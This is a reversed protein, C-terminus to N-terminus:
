FGPGAPAVAGATKELADLATNMATELETAERWDSEYRQCAAAQAVDAATRTAFAESLSLGANRYFPHLAPILRNLELSRREVEAKVSPERGHVLVAALSLVEDAGTPAVVLRGLRQLAQRSDAAEFTPLSRGRRLHHWGTQWWLERERTDRFRGPYSAALAAEPDDGRLLKKLFAPWEAAGSSEQQCFILLWVAGARREAPETEGRKWQFLQVSSPPRLASSAQKLADLQAPDARTRWWGLAAHELWLPVSLNERPGHHAVALRTLLGQVIARRLVADPLTDEWRVRVSVVGGPEVLVHFPGPGNWEAVPVLRVLVPSSFRDPLGFPVTLWRWAEDAAATASRAASSDIAAVEFRGPGSQFTVPTPPIARAGSGAALFALWLCRGFGHCGFRRQAARDRAAVALARIM